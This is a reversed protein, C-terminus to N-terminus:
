KKLTKSITSINNPNSIITEGGIVNQGESVITPYNSPLYLDVRSGFKIIGFRDGLKVHQNEKM